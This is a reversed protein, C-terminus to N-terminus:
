AAHSAQRRPLRRGTAWLLVPVGFVGGSIVAYALFWTASRWPPDPWWYLYTLLAASAFAAFAISRWGGRVLAALPALWTLYWPWFWWSVLLLYALLVDFSAGALQRGDGRVRWLIAGYVIAFLTGTALRVLRSADADGLSASLAGHALTAPSLIFTMGPRSLAAVTERGAYLPAFAAVALGAAAAASVLVTRRPVEPQRLLWVFAVPLFLATTYKVLASLVLLPLLWGYAGRSLALCAAALFAAMLADNHGNGASEWLLLPCWGCLVIAQVRREPALRSAALGALLATALLAAGMLLKQAVLNAVLGDGALLVPLGAIYYWLPGYASPLDAYGWVQGAVADDPFAAPPVQTPNIGHLWFLRGDAVNHYIDQTGAPNMPLLAIVFLAAFAFALWPSCRASCRGALLLAACWLASALVAPLAFRLAGALDDGLILVMPAGAPLNGPTRWLSLPWTWGLVLVGGLAVGIGAFALDARTWPAVADVRHVDSAPRSPAATSSTM